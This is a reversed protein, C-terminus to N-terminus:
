LKNETLSLLETHTMKIILDKATELNIKYGFLEERKNDDKIVRLTKSQLVYASVKPKDKLTNHNGIKYKIKDTM